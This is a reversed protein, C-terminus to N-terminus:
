EPMGSSHHEAILWKEGQRAYVFTFRAPVSEGNGFSFTYRGSNIAIDGFLRVNAEDIIGSPDRKLFGLFYDKIEEHNHRVRNSMTPVLIADSAYLVAVNEPDGTQLAANWGDFLAIVNGDTM